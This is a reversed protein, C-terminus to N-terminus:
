QTHWIHSPSRSSLREKRISPIAAARFLRRLGQASRDFTRRPTATPKHPNKRSITHFGNLNDLRSM